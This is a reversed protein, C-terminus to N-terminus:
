KNCPAAGFVADCAEKDSAALSAHYIRCQVTKGSAATLATYGSDKGAGEWGACTSRCTDDDAFAENYADECAAKALSCYTVCNDAGCHGDGAPGAHPCHTQASELSAYAHYVRCGLTNEKRDAGTGKEFLECTDLCQQENDYVASDGTCSRTVVDCYEQCNPIAAPPIGCPSQERPTLSAHWCHESAALDGISASSLHVLRCQVNNADHDKKVDFAHHDPLAACRQECEEQAFTLEDTGGCIAPQLKCYSECNNGCGDRGAPTSGGPGAAPCHVDPEGTQGALLAQENRCAVTNQSETSKATLPLLKCIGLCTEESAYVAYEDSCNKMVHDCYALCEKSDGSAPGAEADADKSPKSNGKVYAAALKSDYKREEVLCGSAFMTALAVWLWAHRM